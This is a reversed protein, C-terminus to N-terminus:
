TNLQTPTNDKSEFYLLTGLGGYYIMNAFYIVGTLLAMDLHHRRFYNLFSFFLFTTVNFFLFMTNVWFVPQIFINLELPALLMDRFMSLSQFTLLISSLQLMNSPFEHVPQYIISNFIAFAIFIAASVANVRKAFAQKSLGYYITSILLYQVVGYVHYVPSSNTTYYILIRTLSESIITIGILITLLRFPLTRRRFKMVGIIFVVALLVLYIFFRFTM